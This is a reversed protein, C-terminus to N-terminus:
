AAEFLSEFKMASVIFTTHIEDDQVFYDGERPMPANAEALWKVCLRSAALRLLIGADPSLMKDGGVILPEVKEIRQANVSHSKIKYNSVIGEAIRSESV